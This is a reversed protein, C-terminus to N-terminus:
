KKFYEQYKKAFDEKNDEFQRLDFDNASYMLLMVGYDNDQLWYEWIDNNKITRLIYTYSNIEYYFEKYNM